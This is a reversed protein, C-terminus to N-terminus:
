IPNIIVLQFGDEIDPFPEILGRIITGKLCTSFPLSHFIQLQSVPRLGNMNLRKKLFSLLLLWCPLWRYFFNMSHSPNFWQVSSRLYYFLITHYHPFRKTIMSSGTDGELDGIDRKNRKPPGSVISPYFVLAYTGIVNANSGLM